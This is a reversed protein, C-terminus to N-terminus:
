ERVRRLADLTDPYLTIMSLEEDLMGQEANSHPLM